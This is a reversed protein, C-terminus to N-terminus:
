VAELGFLVLALDKTPANRATIDIITYAAATSTAAKFQTNSVTLGCRAAEQSNPVSSASPIGIQCGNEGVKYGVLELSYTTGYQATDWDTALINFNYPDGIVYRLMEENGEIELRIDYLAGIRRFWIQMKKDDGFPEYASPTCIYYTHGNSDIVSLDAYVLDLLGISDPTDCDRWYGVTMTNGSTDSMTVIAKNKVFGRGWLSATFDSDISFGSDFEVYAGDATVDVATDNDVYTPPDPNSKGLISSLVSHMTIYGGQCNNVLEIPSYIGPVSYNVTLAQRATQIVTNNVTQGFVQISYTSKDEFGTFIHSLVTPPPATSGVYLTGSNSIEIGQADYLVFYYSNLTEGEAQTYTVEFNYSNSPIVNGDPLNTFSLIPESYCYFQVPQSVPSTDGSADYTQVTVQYYTNNQLTGAPVTHAFQFSTVQQNYVEALTANNKIILRNAVAQSGGTVSFTFTHAKTADFAAVSNLIPTTLAM